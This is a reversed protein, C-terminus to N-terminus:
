KLCFTNSSDELEIVLTGTGTAPAEGDNDVALIVARYKGDKVLPSERDMLSRVKIVGTDPTVSLWGAPDSGIKYTIKQPKGTDPDTAKYTVLESDVPSDEPKFIVKEKPNFEPPENVDEVNVTVTATSTALSGVFPDDNEVIVSLILQKNKEFDLPKVTTIIGELQSPGTSVNFVGSKDGGIIKYKTSWAPSGPEDGDTVTLRAVEAEVKNEPVSVTHTTQEFQPANDNSDTVTIVATGNTVYGEGARDTATILLTYRSWKERELGSANVHIGGTVSNVIFLNPKPLEPDQKVISYSIVGNHTEPDDADTATVTMFEHGIDAAETVSGSFPNQTFVPKNDNQDLVNVIIEMPMEVINVDVGTAHVVLRYSAKKERDLPRTVFLNGSLRDIIFTGNPELDAGEGTIRYQMQAEKSYDSKIQHLKQPFPGKGDELIFFPPIVWSGRKARKLGSSSQPSSINMVTDMHHDEHHHHVREVRISVTHKKGSSDWADVSFVKHGEHLTVRRKLTVTGDTDVDFGKDSSLGIPFGGRGYMSHHQQLDMLGLCKTQETGLLLLRWRLLASSGAVSQAVVLRSACPYSVRPCAVRLHLHNSKPLHHGCRENGWLFPGVTLLVWINLVFEEIEPDWSPESPLPLPLLLCNSSAVLGEWTGEDNDLALIIARYKGDKVLPSERDMLSRVKIVGTDPTVSLWGAPDSGIKYTIKHSKGTDPDTAKYTVLESDVPSDEPKFIVKEKPNFEPPENVDEVNVTVTATSTALSGVFPDDNEVIVSLILQKNKEFDLPKVTTIIGELQSPGTSVNFFGSKDGGIIKYKTSWAPSGPEDGDTVTLRAVEAGVKNEPVSVTHTTQEFQPANDNSDTVTIVATGNTVYGEGARDTATILVTYRSWKERDLGLANVRIGGTVSNITFLNPKPLEPDQKVISYSIVGNDTEPDDADTATVTMFEHGIDAAEPVNGSFPNQTFVPKNDNRDIVNVIIEMPAEVINVDVGTAHAILRYSAKKERDLPRTMFLNGSLREIFFTGKPELDAGEGTIKYQMTVEKDFDSKIQHLKQPFPGKGDELIFFPPIVLGRKARKLGSSSKPFMLVLDDAPSEMQPSSINMVTDMHHDEHHHHVREVRVSVTHKKGSSDWADVSFVKHGEHLTVQRKLM